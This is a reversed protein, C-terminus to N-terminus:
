IEKRNQLFSQYAEWLRGRFHKTDDWNPYFRYEFLTQELINQEWSEAIKRQIGVQERVIKEIVREHPRSISLEQLKECVQTIIQQEVPNQIIKVIKEKRHCM